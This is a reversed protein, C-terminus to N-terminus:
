STFIYRERVNILGDFHITPDKRKPIMANSKTAHPPLAEPVWVVALGVTTGTFPNPVAAFWTCESTAIL